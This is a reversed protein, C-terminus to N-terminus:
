LPKGPSATTPTPPSVISKFFLPQTISNLVQSRVRRELQLVLQTAVSGLPGKNPSAWVTCDSVACPGYGTAAAPNKKPLPLWDTETVM